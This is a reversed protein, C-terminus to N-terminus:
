LPSPWMSAAFAESGYHIQKYSCELCIRCWLRWPRDCLCDRLITRAHFRITRHSLIMSYITLGVLIPMAMLMAEVGRRVLTGYPRTGKGDQFVANVFLLILLLLALLISSAWKTAWLLALGTFPLIALFSLVIIHAHEKALAIGVGGM